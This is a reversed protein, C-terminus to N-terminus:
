KLRTDVGCYEQLGWYSFYFGDKEIEYGGVRTCAPVIIGLEEKEKKGFIQDWQEQSMNVGYFNDQM